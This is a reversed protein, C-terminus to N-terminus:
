VAPGWIRIVDGPRLSPYEKREVYVSGELKASPSGDFVVSIHGLTALNRNVESGIATIVYRQDNFELSDGARIQDFVPSVRIIFCFPRLESPATDGFLVAINVNRFDTANCGAELIVTEYKVGEASSM